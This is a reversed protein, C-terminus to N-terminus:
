LYDTVPIGRLFFFAYVGLGLGNSGLTTKSATSFIWWGASRVRNQQEKSGSYAGFLAALVALLMFVAATTNVAFFILAVILLLFMLWKYSERKFLPPPPPSNNFSRANLATPVTKFNMWNATRITINAEISRAMEFLQSAPISPLAMATTERVSNSACDVYRIVLAHRLYRTKDWRRVCGGPDHDGLTQTVGDINKESHMTGGTSCCLSDLIDNCTCTSTQYSTTLKQQVFVQLVESANITAFYAHWTRHSWRDHWCTLLSALCHRKSLGVDASHKAQTFVLRKKNTFVVRCGQTVEDFVGPAEELGALDLVNLVREGDMLTFEHLDDHTTVSDKIADLHKRACEIDWKELDRAEDSTMLLMKRSVPDMQVM